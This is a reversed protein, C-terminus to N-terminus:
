RKRILILIVVVFALTLLFAWYNIVRSEVTFNCNDLFLRYANVRWEVTSGDSILSNTEVISGPMTVSFSQTYLSVSFVDLAKSVEDDMRSSYKGYLESFYSTDYIHDLALCVKEPSYDDREIYPVINEFAIDRFDKLRRIYATDSNEEVIGTIADYGIMCECNALWRNVKDEIESLLAHMEAGNLGRPTYEMSGFWIKQEEESLYKGVPVPLDFNMKRFEAHYTYYTYFWRFHKELNESPVIINRMNKLSDDISFLEGRVNPFHRSAKVNFSYDDYEMASDLLHIDWGDTDFLYVTRFGNGKRIDSSDAKAYVERYISCDRNVVTNVRYYTDCSVICMSLICILIAFLLRRM